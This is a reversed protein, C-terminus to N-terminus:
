VVACNASIFLYIIFRRNFISGRTALAITGFSQHLPRGFVGVWCISGLRIKSEMKIFEMDREIYGIWFGIRWLLLMRCRQFCPYRFSLFICRISDLFNHKYLYRGSSFYSGFSHKQKKDEKPFMFLSTTRVFRGTLSTM